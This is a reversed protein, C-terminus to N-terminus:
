RGMAGAARATGVASVRTGVARATKVASARAVEVMALGVVVASAERAVATSGLRRVLNSPSNRRELHRMCRSRRYGLLTSCAPSHSGKPLTRNQCRPSCCDGSSRETPRAALLAGTEEEVAATEVVAVKEAAEGRKGAVRATGVAWEVVAVRAAAVRAMEAVVVEADKAVAVEEKVEVARAQGQAM